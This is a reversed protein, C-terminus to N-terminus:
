AATLREALAALKAHLKRATAKKLAAVVGDFSQECLYEVHEVQFQDTTNTQM